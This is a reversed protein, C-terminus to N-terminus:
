GAALLHIGPAALVNNLAMVLAFRDKAPYFTELNLVGIKDFPPTQIREILGPLDLSRGQSWEHNLSRPFSSANWPEEGSGCRDEALGLLSAATTQVRDAMAEADDTDPADFSALVNVPLGSTSGPTYIAM